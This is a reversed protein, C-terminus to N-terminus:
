HGTMSLVADGTDFITSNAPGEVQLVGVLGRELRSLAHDVLLVRGPVDLTVEVATAGGVPVVTTQVDQEASSFSGNTYVKDFIEGILHFNASKNPGGDGFFIRVRDGVAAKLAGGETLSGVAGNLVYYDPREDLLKDYDTWVVGPTGFPDATYIEGQMVYFEHDVAPLGGEPEVLIMGYMGSQIHDAVMPTACHYVYLGAHLAKFSFSTEGGPDTQTAVAGGGPGTVAHLDISHMMMSDAANHLHVEVTDGVRVRIMPGPVQGDFTWYRFATGDALRAEREVTTLNVVVHAPESRTIPPPLDDAARGIPALAAIAEATMPDAAQASGLMLGAALLSGALATSSFLCRTTKTVKAETM